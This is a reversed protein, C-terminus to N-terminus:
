YHFLIAPTAASSAVTKALRPRAILQNNGAATGITTGAADKFTLTAGTYLTLAVCADPIATDANQAPQVLRTAGYLNPSDPLDSVICMVRQNIRETAPCTVVIQVPLEVNYVLPLDIPGVQAGGPVTLMCSLQVTYPYLPWVRLKRLKYRDNQNREDYEGLTVVGSSATTGSPIDVFRQIIAM